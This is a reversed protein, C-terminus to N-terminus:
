WWFAGQRCGLGCMGKCPPGPCHGAVGGVEENTLPAVVEGVGGGRCRFIGAPQEWPSCARLVNSLASGM